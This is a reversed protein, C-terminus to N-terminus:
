GVLYKPLRVFCSVRGPYAPLFFVQSRSVRLNPCSVFLCSAIHSTIILPVFVCVYKLEKKKEMVELLGM